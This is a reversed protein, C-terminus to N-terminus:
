KYSSEKIINIIDIYLLVLPLVISKPAKTIHYTAKIKYKNNSTYGRISSKFPIKQLTNNFHVVQESSKLKLLFSRNSSSIKINRKNFPIYHFVPHLSKLEFDTDSNQLPLYSEITGNLTKDDQKLTIVCNKYSLTISQKPPTKVGFSYTTKNNIIKLDNDDSKILLSLLDEM